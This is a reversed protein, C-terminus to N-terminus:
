SRDMERAICSLELYNSRQPYHRRAAPAIRRRCSPDDRDVPPPDVRAAVVNGARHRVHGGARHHSRAGHSMGQKVVTPEADQTVDPTGASTTPSQSMEDGLLATSARHYGDLTTPSCATPGALVCWVQRHHAGAATRMLTSRPAYRPTQGLTARPREGGTRSHRPPHGPQLQQAVTTQVCSSGTM